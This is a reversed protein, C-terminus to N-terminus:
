PREGTGQSGSYRGPRERPSDDRIAPPAQVFEPPLASLGPRCSGRGEELWQWVEGQRQVKGHLQFAVRRIGIPTHVESSGAIAFPVRDMATGVGEPQLALMVSFRSTDRMSLHVPRDRQGRGVTKGAVALWTSFADGTLEYDNRNCGIFVLELSDSSGVASSDQPHLAVGRLAFSPDDYVWAGVATCGYSLSVGALLALRFRLM